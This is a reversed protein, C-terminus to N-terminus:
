TAKSACLIEEIKSAVFYIDNPGNLEIPIQEFCLKGRYYFKINVLFRNSKKRNDITIASNPVWDYVRERLANTLDNTM